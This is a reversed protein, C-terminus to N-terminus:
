RIGANVTEILEPARGPEFNWLETRDCNALLGPERIIIDEM